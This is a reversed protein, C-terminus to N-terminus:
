KKGIVAVLYRFTFPALKNWITGNMTARLYNEQNVETRYGGEIWSKGAGWVMSVFPVIVYFPSFIRFAMGQSCDAVLLNLYPYAISPAKRTIDEFWSLGILTKLKIQWFVLFVFILLNWSYNLNRRCNEYCPYFNESIQNFETM